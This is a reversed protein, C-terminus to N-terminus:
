ERVSMGAAGCVRLVDQVVEEVPPSSNILAAGLASYKAVLPGDIHLIAKPEAPARGFPNDSRKEIRERIATEHLFLCIKVDILHSAAPSGQVVRPCRVLVSPKSSRM